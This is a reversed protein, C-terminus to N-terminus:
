FLGWGGYHLGDCEGGGDNGEDRENGGNGGKVGVTGWVDAVTCAFLEDCPL